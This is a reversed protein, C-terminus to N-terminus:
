LREHARQLDAYRRHLTTQQLDRQIVKAPQRIILLHTACPTVENKVKSSICLARTVGSV